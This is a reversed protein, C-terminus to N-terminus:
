VMIQQNNVLENFHTNVNNLTLFLSSNYTSGSGDRDIYLQTNSGNVITKIFSELNSSSYNGTYDVLLDRIDIKDANVNTATNGVIFDTWNDNGNGGIADSSVLLEYIVIDAGAGGTFQDNGLGGSLVDKGNGGLLKDNGAGSEIYDNGAGGNLTNNASNGKLTNALSNGTGNIASLGVLTLNEIYSGLTSSVSSQVTDIGEKANETIEDTSNEIVYQDDGKGGILINTGSGGYLQDNGENGVLYDDDNGGYLQDNGNQGYLTDNGENGYIINNRNEYGEIFNDQKNGILSFNKIDELSWISQDAFTLSKFIFFTNFIDRILLQDETNKIKILLDTSYQIELEIDNPLVGLLIHTETLLSNEDLYVSQITDHGDGYNFIYTNIGYGGDLVDSGSGGRLLDDGEGAYLQDDGEDGCLQDNGNQGYLTDNGANGYIINDRNEFGQIFDDQVTGTLGQMKLNELNWITQDAFTITKFISNESFAQEIRLQDESGVINLIVDKSEISVQLNQPLLDLLIYTETQPSNEDIWASQITDQGSGRTFLYYNIGYGGDFIDNSVSSILLDDNETGTYFGDKAEPIHVQLTQNLIKDILDPHISTSVIQKLGNQIDHFLQPGRSFVDYLEAIETLSQQKIYQYLQNLDPEIANNKQVIQIHNFIQPFEIQIYLQDYIKQQLLKWAQELAYAQNNGVQLTQEPDASSHYEHGM